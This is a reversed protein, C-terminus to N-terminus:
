NFATTAARASDIDGECAVRLGIQLITRDHVDHELQTNLFDSELANLYGVARQAWAM